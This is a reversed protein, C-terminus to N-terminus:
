AVKSDAVCRSNRKDGKVYSSPILAIEYDVAAM